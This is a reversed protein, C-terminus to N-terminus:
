VDTRLQSMALRTSARWWHCVRLGLAFSSQFCCPGNQMSCRSVCSVPAKQRDDCVPSVPWNAGPFRPKWFLHPSITNRIQDREVPRSGSSMEDCSGHEQYVPNSTASITCKDLLTSAVGVLCIQRIDEHSTLPLPALALGSCQKTGVRYIRTDNEIEEYSCWCLTRGVIYRGRLLVIDNKM